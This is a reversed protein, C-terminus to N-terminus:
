KGGSVNKGVYGWLGTVCKQLCRDFAEREDKMLVLEEGIYRRENDKVRRSWYASKLACAEFVGDADYEFTVTNGNLTHSMIKFYLTFLSSGTLEVTVKDEVDRTGVEWGGTKISGTKRSNKLERMLTDMPTESPRVKVVIADLDLDHIEGNDEETSQHTIGGETLSGPGVVGAMVAAFSVGGGGFLFACLSDVDLMGTVVSLAVGVLAFCGLFKMM